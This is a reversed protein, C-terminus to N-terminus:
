PNEVVFGLATRQEGDPTQMVVFLEYDGNALLSTDLPQERGHDDLVPSFVPGVLDQKSLVPEEAGTPFLSFSAAEVYGAAISILAQGSLIAGDLPAPNTEALEVTVLAPDAPATAGEAAGSAVFMPIAVMATVVAAVVLTPLTGARREGSIIESLRTSLAPQM